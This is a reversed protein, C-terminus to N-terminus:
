PIVDSLKFHSFKENEKEKEKKRFFKENEQFPVIILYEFVQGILFIGKCLNVIFCYPISYKLILM